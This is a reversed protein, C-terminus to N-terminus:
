RSPTMQCDPSNPSDPAMLSEPTPSGPPYPGPTGIRKNVLLVQYTTAPLPRATATCTQNNFHVSVLHFHRKLKKLGGLVHADDIGHLEMAMQDVGALVDDPTALITDWEAGEIDMKVVLRRGTDGNRAIQNALTDFTRGDIVAATPGVCEVNMHLVAGSCQVKEPIFCDYQHVPVRQKRSIACGWADEGGIGYSYASQLDTLLNACILYGGDHRGGLRELTCNSLAVPQLEAVLPARGRIVDDPVAANERAERRYRADAEFAALRTEARQLKMYTYILLGVTTVLLVVGVIAAARGARHVALHYPM